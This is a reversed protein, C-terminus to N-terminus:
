STHDTTATAVDSTFIALLVESWSDSCDQILGRAWAHWPPSLLIFDKAGATIVPAPRKQGNRGAGHFSSADPQGLWLIALGPSESGLCWGWIVNEQILWRMASGTPHFQHYRCYCLLAKWCGIMCNQANKGRAHDMAITFDQFVAFMGLIIIDYINSYDRTWSFLM